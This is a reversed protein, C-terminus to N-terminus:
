PAPSQTTSRASTRVPPNYRSPDKRPGALYVRLSRWTTGGRIETPVGAPPPDPPSSLSARRWAPTVARATTREPTVREGMRARKKRRGDLCRENSIEKQEHKKMPLTRRLWARQKPRGGLSEFRPTEHSTTAVYGDKREEHKNRLDPKLHVHYQATQGMGASLSPSRTWRLVGVFRRETRPAGEGRAARAIWRADTAPSLTTCPPLRQATPHQRLSIGIAAFPLRGGCLSPAPLLVMPLRKPCGLVLCICRSPEPRANSM